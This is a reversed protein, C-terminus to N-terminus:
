AGELLARDGAAGSVVTGVREAVSHLVATDRRLRALLLAGEFSSLVFDALPVAQEAPVGAARLHGQIIQLWSGYVRECAASVQASDAAAELAMVAVPCGERFDSSELLGGLLEAVRSMAVRPALGTTLVAALAQRVEDGALDISEAALQEKGGPFHFYLSGKPARAEAVVQNLGTAQYGQRRFLKSATRLV